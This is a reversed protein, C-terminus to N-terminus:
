IGKKYKIINLHSTLIMLVPRKSLDDKRRWGALNIFKQIGDDDQILTSGSKLIRESEVYMKYMANKAWGLSTNSDQMPRVYIDFSLGELDLYTENTSGLDIPPSYAQSIPSVVIQPFKVGEDYLRTTFYVKTADLDGTLNWNNKLMLMVELAADM